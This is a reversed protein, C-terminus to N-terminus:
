DNPNEILTVARFEHRHGEDNSTVSKIFHVHRDGVLIETSTKGYFIHYHGNNFDTKFIIEHVHSLNDIPIAEGTVTLFHHNHPNDVIESIFVSGIIEHVHLKENYSNINDFM